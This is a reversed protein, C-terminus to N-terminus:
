VQSQLAQLAWPSVLASIDQSWSQPVLIPQSIYLPRSIYTCTYIYVSFFKGENEARLKPIHM